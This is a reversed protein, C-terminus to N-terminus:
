NREFTREGLLYRWADRLVPTADPALPTFLDVATSRHATALDSGGRPALDTTLLHTGSFPLASLEPAVPSGFRDMDLATANAGIM